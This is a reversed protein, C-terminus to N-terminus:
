ARFIEGILTLIENPDFAKKELEYVGEKIQRVDLLDEVFSQMLSIQSIILTFYKKARKKDVPDTLKDM